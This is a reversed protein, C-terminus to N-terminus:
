HGPFTSLRRYVASTMPHSRETPPGIKIPNLQNLFNNQCKGYTIPRRPRPGDNDVGSAMLGDLFADSFAM